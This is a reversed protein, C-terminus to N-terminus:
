AASSRTNTCQLTERRIWQNESAVPIKSQPWPARERLKRSSSNAKARACGCYTVSWRSRTRTADHKDSISPTNSTLSNSVAFRFATNCLYIYSLIYPPIAITQTLNGREQVHAARDARFAILHM